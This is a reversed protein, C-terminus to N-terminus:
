PRIERISVKKYWQEGVQDNRLVIFAQPPTIIYDTPIKCSAATTADVAWGGADTYEM